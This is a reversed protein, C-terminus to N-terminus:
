RLVPCETRYGNHSRHEAAGHEDREHLLGISHVIDKEYDGAERRYGRAKLRYGDSVGRRQTLGSPCM